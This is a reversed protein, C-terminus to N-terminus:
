LPEEHLTSYDWATTTRPVVEFWDLAPDAAAPPGAAVLSGRVLLARLDWWYFGADATVAITAGTGLGTPCGERPLGVHTRGGEWRFAVPLAHLAGAPDVYALTATRLAEFLERLHEPRVRNSIRV